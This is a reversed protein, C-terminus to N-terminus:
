QHNKGKLMELFHFIHSFATVTQRALGTATAHKDLKGFFETGGHLAVFVGQEFFAATPKRNKYKDELELLRLMFIPDVLFRGEVQDTTYVEFLKEFEPDALGMPKMTKGFRGKTNFWGKDRAIVTTSAFKRAYPSHLLQGNFVTVWYTETTTRGNSHTRTRTRREEIHAEYVTFELGQHAGGVM